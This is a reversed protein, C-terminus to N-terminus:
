CVLGIFHLNSISTLKVNIVDKSLKTNNYLIVPIDDETKGINNEELLVSSISGLKSKMFELKNFNSIETILKVRQKSISRQIQNPMDFAETYKRPSFPFAHIHIPKLDKALNLTDNFFEVTEGPFGCIIDWGFSIFKNSMINKVMEATHRRRMLKLITNNGSQMSLHLHPLIKKNTKILEIIKNIENSAPDISSLRLREIYKVDNLLKKCLDSLYLSNEKDFYSAIDIGTLVIEKFGESSAKKVENLITQYGFSYSKGRLLKTICFSCNHNCGNQIQIYKKSLELSSNKFINKGISFKDNFANLYSELNLKNENSIVFVSDLNQYKNPNLTASCGTIFIPINKYEKIIKRLKQSVQREAESTVACSNIVIASKFYPSILNSIKQSELANLRCGFTIQLINKYNQM